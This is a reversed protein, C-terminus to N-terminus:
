VSAGYCNKTYVLLCGSLCVCESDDISVSIENEGPPTEKAGVTAKSQNEQFINWEAPSLKVDYSGDANAALKSPLTIGAFGNSLNIMKWLAGPIHLM